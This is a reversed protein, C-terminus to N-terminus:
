SANRDGYQGLASIGICKLLSEKRVREEDTKKMAPIDFLEQLEEMLEVGVKVSFYEKSM